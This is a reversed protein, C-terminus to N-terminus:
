SPPGVALRGGITTPHELEDLVAVAYDECSIFSNGEGDVVLEDTGTAYRGTRISPTIVDAPSVYTWDLASAQRRYIELAEIQALSAPKWAEPFDPRDVVRGGSPARLGGAGGVVVLRRVDAQQLGAVLSPAAEAVLGPRGSSAGGIASVVADVGAVAAAVAETDTPDAFRVPLEVDPRRGNERAVAVVEHGRAAAETVIRSGITGTAGFVAIRM